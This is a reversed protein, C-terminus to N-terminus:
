VQPSYPKDKESDLVVYYEKSNYYCKAARLKCITCVVVNVISRKHVSSGAQQMIHDHCSYGGDTCSVKDHGNQSLRYVHSIATETYMHDSQGHITVRRRIYQNKINIKCKQMKKYKKKCKNTGATQKIHKHM